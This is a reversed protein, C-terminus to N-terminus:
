VTVSCWLQKNGFVFFKHLPVCLEGLIKSAMVHSDIYIKAM